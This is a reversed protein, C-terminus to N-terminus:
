ADVLAMFVLILVIVVVSWKVFAIFGAFTDEQARVNMSGVKHEAM